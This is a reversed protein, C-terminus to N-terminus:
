PKACFGSAERGSDEKKCILGPPCITNERGGCFQGIGFLDSRDSNKTPEFIPMKIFPTITPTPTTTFIPQDDNVGLVTKNQITLVSSSLSYYTATFGIILGIIISLIIRTM